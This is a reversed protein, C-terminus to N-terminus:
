DGDGFTIEYPCVIARLPCVMECLTCWGCEDTEIIRLTDEILVIAGCKCVAACLGCFNCKELDLEPMDPM